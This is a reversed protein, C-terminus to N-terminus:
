ELRQFNKVFAVLQTTLTSWLGRRLNRRQSLSCVKVAQAFEGLM